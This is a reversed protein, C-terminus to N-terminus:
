FPAPEEAPAVGATRNEPARARASLLEALRWKQYRNLTPLEAGAFLWMGRGHKRAEGMTAAFWEAPHAIGAARFLEDLKADLRTKKGSVIDLLYGAQTQSLDAFSALQRVGLHARAWALRGDRDHEYVEGRPGNARPDGYARLRSWKVHLCSLQANTLGKM